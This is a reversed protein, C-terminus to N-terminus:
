RIINEIYTKMQIKAAHNLLAMTLKDIMDNIELAAQEEEEIDIANGVSDKIVQLKAAASQLINFEDGFIGIQNIENIVQKSNIYAM